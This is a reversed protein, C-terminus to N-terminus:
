VLKSVNIIEVISENQFIPGSPDLGTRHRPPHVYKCSGETDIFTGRSFPRVPDKFGLVTLGLLRVLSEERASETIDRPGSGRCM